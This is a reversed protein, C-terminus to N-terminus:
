YTLQLADINSPNGVKDIALVAFEYPIDNQLGSVRASTTTGPLRESCIYRPDKTLFPGYPPITQGGSGAGGDSATQAVWGPPLPDSAGSVSADSVGADPTSGPPPLPTRGPCVTDTTKYAAGFTGNRFVQLGDGRACLIQISDVDGRNAL